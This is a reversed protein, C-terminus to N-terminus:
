KGKFSATRKEIFATVAEMHDQTNHSIGQFAACVELFDNLQMRQAKKMLRKSYRVAHPPKSAIETALMSARQLLDQQPVVDLLLGLAQAENADFVRGTFTLEAAKQYGVLRQLYWAGGDGPIIGLNVFTEGFKATESALRMDCMCALDFGAGIAAGNVAAIVPVEASEIALPIRQIGERYKQELEKVNGAFDGQRNQMDKINGGASFASGNGTIILVSVNTNGNVWDVCRVIDDILNTGTLANRVDDRDFTLIAVTGEIGLRADILPPQKMM